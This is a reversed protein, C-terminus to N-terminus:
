AGRYKEKGFAVLLVGTLIIGLAIVQRGQIAEGAILWGLFMAVVPNVYAYTGVLIASRVSLLWLYSMYGLISGVLILYVLALLSTNSVGPWSADHYEGSIGSGIFYVLGAAIMQVAGKMITSGNTSQYKTYLSGMAWCMSGIIMVFFSILKMHDGSFSFTDKDAFLTLVGAFGIIIGAIIWKNRFNVKWERKDMSVFWLPVGAVIIAALSSPIYQEVWAVAGTGLFLMLIGSLSIKGISKIDPIREGRALCYILLILGATTFRFGGMVVPPITKIALLMGLYTSGWILYIAAFAAIVFLKTPAKQSIAPQLTM